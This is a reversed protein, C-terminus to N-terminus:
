RLKRSIRGFKKLQKVESHMLLIMRMKESKIADLGQYASRLVYTPIDNQSLNCSNQNSSNASVSIILNM